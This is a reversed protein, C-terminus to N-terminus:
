QGGGSGDTSSANASRITPEIDELGQDFLPEGSELRSREFTGIELGVSRAAESPPEFELTPIPEGEVRAVAGAGTSAAVSDTKM